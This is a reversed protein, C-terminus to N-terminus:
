IDKNEKQLINTCPLSFVISYIVREPITDIIFGVFGYEFRYTQLGKCEMFLRMALIHLSIFSHKQIDQLDHGFHHLHVLGTSHHELAASVRQGSIPQAAKVEGDFTDLEIM